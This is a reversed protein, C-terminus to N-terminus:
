HFVKYIPSKLCYSTAVLNTTVLAATPAWEQFWREMQLWIKRTLNENGYNGYSPFVEPQTRGTEKFLSLQQEILENRALSKQYRRKQQSQNKSTNMQTGMQTGIDESQFQRPSPPLNIHPPAPQCLTSKKNEGLVIEQTFRSRGIFQGSDFIGEVFFERFYM